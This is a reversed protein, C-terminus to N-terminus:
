GARPRAALFCFQGCLTLKVQNRTRADLRALAGAAEIVRNLPSERAWWRGFFRPMGLARWAVLTLGDIGPRVEVLELGAAEVLLLLGYPTLNFTSRSHFAELQSTSGVLLGGPELVRAVEGVLPEPRRVHELVQKCFVLGFSADDFPLLEGDFTVFEADTRTREAVEPSGAIDAGVWKVAPALSRFLDVSGGAGCGLDLVRAAPRAYSDALTQRSHDAPIRAGLLEGLDDGLM